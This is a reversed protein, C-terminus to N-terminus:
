AMEQMVLKTQTLSYGPKLIPYGHGGGPGLGLSTGVFLQCIVNVRQLTGHIQDVKGLGLTRVFLVDTSTLVVRESKM